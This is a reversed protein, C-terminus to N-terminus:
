RKFPMLAECSVKTGFTAVADDWNDLVMQQLIVTRVIKLKRRNSAEQLLM